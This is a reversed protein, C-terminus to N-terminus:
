QVITDVKHLFSKTHTIYDKINDLTISKMDYDPTCIVFKDKRSFEIPSKKHGEILSRVEQLVDLDEKQFGYTQQCHQEFIHLQSVFTDQFAPVRKYTREFNVVAALGYHMAQFINELVTLLLRPDQVFPYTMTLMHDAIQLKKKALDKLKDYHDM